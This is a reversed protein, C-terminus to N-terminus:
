HGRGIPRRSCWGSCAVKEDLLEDLDFDNIAHLITNIKAAHEKSKREYCTACIGSNCRSYMKCALIKKIRASFLYKRDLLFDDM